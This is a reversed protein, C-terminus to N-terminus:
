AREGSSSSAVVAAMFQEAAALQASLGPDNPSDSLKVLTFQGITMTEGLSKSGLQFGLNPFNASQAAAAERVAERMRIRAPKPADDTWIKLCLRADEFQLFVTGELHDIGGWAFAVFGESANPVYQIRAQSIQRARRLADFYGFYDFYEFEGARKTVYGGTRRELQLLVREYAEALGRWEGDEIESRCASLAARLETSTRVLPKETQTYVYSWDPWHLGRSLGSVGLLLYLVQQGAVKRTHALQDVIRQKTLTDDLKLEILLRPRNSGEVSLDFAGSEPEWNVAPREFRLECLRDLLAPEQLLVALAAQHLRECEIKTAFLRDIISM